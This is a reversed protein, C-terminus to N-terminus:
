KKAMKILFEHIVTTSSLEPHFTTAVMNKEMAMIIVDNLKSLPKADGWTKVIAPARIFVVRTKGGGIESLDVTAEFSERQRGYYNRIVSIDMSGILPQSKKGVKADTVDKALMIAGACTGLTPIGSNIKEKLEDLVGLKQAVVGITTSEGGPIIIADVDKLDNPKKVAVIDGQIKLNDLARKTQLAHEEFSGQYAVIGIKM